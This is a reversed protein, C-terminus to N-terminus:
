VYSPAAPVPRILDWSQQPQDNQGKGISLSAVIEKGSMAKWGDGMEGTDTDFFWHDAGAAKNNFEEEERPTYGFAALIFAKRFGASEDTHYFLRQYAKKGVHEAPSEKGNSDVPGAVVTCLFGVGWNPKDKNPGTKTTGTFLKPEGIKLRYDNDPLVPFGAADNSPDYNHRM